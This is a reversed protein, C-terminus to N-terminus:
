DGSLAADAERLDLRYGKVVIGGGPAFDAELLARSAWRSTWVFPPGCCAPTHLGIAAAGSERARRICERDEAGKAALTTLIAGTPPGSRSQSPRRTNPAGRDM